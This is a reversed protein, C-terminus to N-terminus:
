CNALLMYYKFDNVKNQINELWSKQRLHDARSRAVADSRWSGRVTRQQSMDPRVTSHGPSAIHFDMSIWPFWHFGEIKEHTKM